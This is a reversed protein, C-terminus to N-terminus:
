YFDELDWMSEIPKDNKLKGKEAGAMVCELRQWEDKPKWAVNGVQIDAIVDSDEQKYQLTPIHLFSFFPFIKRM